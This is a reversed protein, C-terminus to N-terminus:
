NQCPVEITVRETGRMVTNTCVNQTAQPARTTSGSVSDRGVVLQGSVFNPDVDTTLAISIRGSNQAQTLRAVQERTGAITLTNGDKALVRLGNEIWRTNEVSTEGDSTTGTWYVDILSEEQALAASDTQLQYASMGPGLKGATGAPEGPETVRSALIVENPLASRLIARNVDTGRPFLPNTAGDAPVPFVGEPLMNQQLWVITVDDATLPDGFKKESNFAYVEVLPGTQNLLATARAVEAETQGIFNRAMYVAAGALLFGVLLVLAFVARM